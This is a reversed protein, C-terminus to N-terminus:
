EYYVVEGTIKVIRHEPFQQTYEDDGINERAKVWGNSMIEVHDYNEREGTDFHIAVRETM